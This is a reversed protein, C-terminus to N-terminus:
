NYTETNKGFCFYLHLREQPYKTYDCFFFIRKITSQLTITYFKKGVQTNVAARKKLFKCNQDINAMVSLTSSALETNILHSVCVKFTGWFPTPVVKCLPLLSLKYCFSNNEPMAPLCGKRIWSNPKYILPTNVQQSKEHHGIYAASQQFGMQWLQIWLPWRIALTIPMQALDVLSKGDKKRKHKKNQKKLQESDLKHQLPSACSHPWGRATSM